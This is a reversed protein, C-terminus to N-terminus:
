IVEIVNADSIRTFWLIAGAAISVSSAANGHRFTFLIREGAELRIVGSTTLLVPVGNASEFSTQSIEQILLNGGTSSNTRVHQMQLERYSNDTAAGTPASQVFAGAHWVGTPLAWGFTSSGPAVFNAFNVTSATTPLFISFGTGPLLGNSASFPGMVATTTAVYTPLNVGRRLAAELCYIREEAQVATEHLQKAIAAYNQPQPCDLDSFDCLDSM